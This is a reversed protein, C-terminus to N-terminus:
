RRIQWWTQTIIEATWYDDGRDSSNMFVPHGYKVYNGGEAVAFNATYGDGPMPAPEIHIHYRSHTEPTTKTKLKMLSVMSDGKQAQTHFFALNTQPSV